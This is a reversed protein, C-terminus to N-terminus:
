APAPTAVPRAAGAGRLIVRMRMGYRPRLTILPEPAVQQHPALEFRCRRALAALVLVGEAWAFGEGICNRPGASFPFYAFRHRAAKAEPSFHEPDFREPNPYHRPDHHVVFPSMVVLSNKALLQNGLPLPEIVRRAMIWAPPYLRLSEAFVKETYPLRPLDAATPPREGLVADLEAHLRAEVQPYQSLLYLTWILGNATTEHGALMLTVCEDRLQQDTMRGGDGQEDHAAILMSLLDGHDRGSRRREAIMQYIIRDMTAISERMRRAPPLPLKELYELYPLMMFRFSRMFGDLAKGVEAADREIDSDFLTKGAIALTLRMLDRDLNRVEGDRLGQTYRDTFEAMATGYTILRQRAFAPQSLRRQRLHHEGESTLLGEGFLRKARELGRGKVVKRAHTVLVEKILDPDSVFYVAYPGIRLGVFDGHRVISRVFGLRDRQMRFYNLWNSLPSGPLKVLNAAAM